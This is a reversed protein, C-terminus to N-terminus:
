TPTREHSEADIFINMLASHRGCGRRGEAGENGGENEMQEEEEEEGGQGGGNTAM